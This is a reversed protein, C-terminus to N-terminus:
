ITFQEVGIKHCKTLLQDLLSHYKVKKPSTFNTCYKGYYWKNWVTREAELDVDDPVEIVGEFIEHGEATESVIVVTRM